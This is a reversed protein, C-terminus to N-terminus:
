YNICKITSVVNITINEIMVNKRARNSLISFPQIVGKDDMAVIEADIIFSRTNEKCMESLLAVVDPYKDTM